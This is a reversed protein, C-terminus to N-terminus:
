SDTGPAVADPEAHNDRRLLRHALAEVRDDAYATGERLNEAAEGLVGRSQEVV